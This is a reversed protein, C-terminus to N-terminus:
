HAGIVRSGASTRLHRSRKLDKSIYLRRLWRDKGDWTPEYSRRGHAVVRNNIYMFDGSSLVVDRTAKNLANILNQYAAIAEADDTASANYNANVRVYPDDLSGFLIALRTVDSSIRSHAINHKIQFRDQFLIEKDKRSLYIDRVSSIITPANTPNRICLLGLFEGSYPSFADETHLGFDNEFGSSIPLTANDRIPIVDNIINGYQITSFTFLDGLISSFMLHIFDYKHAYEPSQREIKTPTPTLNFEELDIGNIILVDPKDNLDFAIMKEILDYPLYKSMASAKLLADEVPIVERQGYTENVADLISRAGERSLEFREVPDRMVYGPHLDIILLM